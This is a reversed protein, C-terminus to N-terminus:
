IVLCCLEESKEYCGSIVAYSIFCPCGSFGSEALANIAKEVDKGNKIYSVDVWKNPNGNYTGADDVVVEVQAIRQGDVTLGSYCHSGCLSYGADVAKQGNISIVFYREM